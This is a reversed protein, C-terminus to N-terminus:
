RESCLFIFFSFSSSAEENRKRKKEVGCSWKVRGRGGGCQRCGGRMEEEKLFCWGRGLDGM